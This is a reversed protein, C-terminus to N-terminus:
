NNVIKVRMKNEIFVKRIALNNEMSLINIHAIIFIHNKKRTKHWKTHVKIELSSDLSNFFFSHCYFPMDQIHM